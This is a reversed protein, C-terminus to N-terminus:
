DMLKKVLTEFSNEVMFEILKSIVNSSTNGIIKIAESYNESSSDLGLQLPVSSNAAQILANYVTGDPELYVRHLAVIIEQLRIKHIAANPSQIPRQKFIFFIKNHTCENKM